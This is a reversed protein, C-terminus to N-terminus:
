YAGGQWASLTQAVWASGNWVLFAGTAPSSPNSIKGDIDDQMDTIEQSDLVDQVM